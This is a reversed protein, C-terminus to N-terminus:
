YEWNLIKNLIPHTDKLHNRFTTISPFSVATIEVEHCHNCQVFRVDGTDTKRVDTRFHKRLNRHTKM